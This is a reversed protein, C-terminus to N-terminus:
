ISDVKSSYPLWSGLYFVIHYKLDDSMKADFPNDTSLAKCLKNVTDLEGKTVTLDVGDILLVKNGDVLLRHARVGITHFSHKEIIDENNPDRKAIDGFKTIDWRINFNFYAKNDKRYYVSRDLDELHVPKQDKDADLLWRGLITEDYNFREASRRMNDLSNEYRQITNDSFFSKKTIADFYDMAEKESKFEAFIMITSQGISGNARRLEEDDTRDAIRYMVFDKISDKYSRSLRVVETYCHPLNSSGITGSYTAIDIKNDKCGESTVYYGDKLYNFDNMKFRGGNRTFDYEEAGLKKELIERVEDVSLDKISTSKFGSCGGLSFIMCVVVILSIVSSFKRMNLMNLM